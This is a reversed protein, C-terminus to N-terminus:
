KKGWHKFHNQAEKLSIDGRCMMKFYRNEEPDKVRRAPEWPQPWLNRADDAGGLERPILHDIEVRYPTPWSLGYNAAAQRKMALTVHRVDRGWATACITAKSLPRVMGPTVSPNPLAIVIQLALLLAIM